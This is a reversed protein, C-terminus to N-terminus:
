FLYDCYWIGDLCQTISEPKVTAESLFNALVDYEVQMKKLTDEMQKVLRM